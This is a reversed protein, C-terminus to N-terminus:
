TLVVGCGHCTPCEVLCSRPDTEEGSGQCDPCIKVKEMIDAALARVRDEVPKRGWGGLDRKPPGDSTLVLRDATDGNGNTFLGAVFREILDDITM